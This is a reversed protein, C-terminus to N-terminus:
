RTVRSVEDARQESKPYPRSLPLVRRRMARDLPYLYRHKGQRYVHPVNHRDRVRGARVMLSLTRPHRVEGKIVPYKGGDSKGTYIWNMAQYIAGNHGQEPDAFSIILRLKPSQSRLMKIAIPVIKSVPTQHSDRLAIRVLECWEGLKLEYRAGLQRNAGWGFVVAGVFEDNEWVGIKALKSAPMRQSYHWHEVAYKAAEYSCWDVRLDVRDSM